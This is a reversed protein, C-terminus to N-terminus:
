LAANSGPRGATASVAAAYKKHRPGISSALCIEQQGKISQAGQKADIYDAHVATGLQSFLAELQIKCTRYKINDACGLVQLM